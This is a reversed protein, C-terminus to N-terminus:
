IDISVFIDEEGTYKIHIFRSIVEDYKDYTFNVHMQTTESCEFVNKGHEDKLSVRSGSYLWCSKYLIFLTNSFVNMGRLDSSARCSNWM